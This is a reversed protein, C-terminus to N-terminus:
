PTLAGTAQKCKVLAKLIRANVATVADEVKLYAAGGIDPDRKATDLLLLLVQRANQLHEVATEGSAVAQDVLARADENATM